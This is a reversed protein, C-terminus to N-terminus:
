ILSSISYVATFSIKWLNLPSSYLSSMYKVLHFSFNTCMVIGSKELLKVTVQSNRVINSNLVGRTSSGSYAELYYVKVVLSHCWMGAIWIGRKVNSIAFAKLLLSDSESTNSKQSVLRMERLKDTAVAEGSELRFVGIRMWDACPTWFDYYIFEGKWLSHIVKKFDDSLKM